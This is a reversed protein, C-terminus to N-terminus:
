LSLFKGPIDLLPESPSPKAPSISSSSSSLSGTSFFILFSDRIGYVSMLLSSFSVNIPWSFSFRNVANLLHNSTMFLFLTFM